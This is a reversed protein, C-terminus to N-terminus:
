RHCRPRSGRRYTIESGRAGGKNCNRAQMLERPRIGPSNGGRWVVAILALDMYSLYLNQHTEGQSYIFSFSNGAMTVCLDQHIVKSHRHVHQIFHHRLTEAQQSIKMTLLQLNTPTQLGSLVFRISVSPGADCFNCVLPIWLPGLSFAEPKSVSTSTRQIQKLFGPHNEM